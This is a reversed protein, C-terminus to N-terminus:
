GLLSLITDISLFKEAAMIKEILGKRALRIKYIKQNHDMQTFVDTFHQRLFFFSLFNNEILDGSEKVPYQTQTGCTM